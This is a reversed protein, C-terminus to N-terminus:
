HPAKEQPKDTDTFPLSEYSRALRQMTPSDDAARIGSKTLFSGITALMAASPDGAQLQLTLTAVYLRHLTEIASKKAAAM